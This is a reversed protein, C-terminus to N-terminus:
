ADGLFSSRAVRYVAGEYAFGVGYRFTRGLERLWWVEQSRTGLGEVIRDGVVSLLYRVVHLPVWNSLPDIRGVLLFLGGVGM